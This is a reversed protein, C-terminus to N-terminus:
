FCFAFKSRSRAYIFPPFSSNPQQFSLNIGFSVLKNSFKKNKKKKHCTYLFPDDFASQAIKVYPVNSAM